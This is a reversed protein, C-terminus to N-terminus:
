QKWNWNVEFYEVKEEDPLTLTVRLTAERKESLVFKGSFQNSSDSQSDSLALHRRHHLSKSHLRDVRQLIRMVAAQIFSRQQVLESDEHVAFVGGYQVLATSPSRRVSQPPFSIVFIPLKREEVLLSLGSSDNVGHFSESSSIIVITDSDTLEKM